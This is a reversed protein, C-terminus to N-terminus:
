APAAIAAAAATASARRELKAKAEAKDESRLHRMMAVFGGFTVGGFLAPIVGIAFANGAGVGSIIAIGVALCYLVPTGSIMGVAILKYLRDDTMPESV